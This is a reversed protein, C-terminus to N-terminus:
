EQTSKATRPPLTAERNLAARGAPRADIRAVYDRNREGLPLGMQLAMAFLYARELHPGVFSFWRVIDAGLV